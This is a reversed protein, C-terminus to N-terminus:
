RHRLSASSNDLFSSSSSISRRCTSNTTSDNRLPLLILAWNFRGVCRAMPGPKDRRSREPSTDGVLRLFGLGLLATEKAGLFFFPTANSILLLSHSARRMICDMEQLNYRKKAEIATRKKAKFTMSQLLLQIGM